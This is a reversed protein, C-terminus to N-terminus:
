DTLLHAHHFVLTMQHCEPCFSGDKNIRNRWAMVTWNPEDVPLSMPPIGYQHMDVNGCKPCRLESDAMNADVLGCNVCYFPFPSHTLYDSRNGGVTVEQTFGCHCTALHKSGM